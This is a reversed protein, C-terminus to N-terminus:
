GVFCARKLNKYVARVPSSFYNKFVHYTVIFIVLLKLKQAKITQLILSHSSFFLIEPSSMENVFTADKCKRIYNSM